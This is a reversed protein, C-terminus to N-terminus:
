HLHIRRADAHKFTSNPRPRSLQQAGARILESSPWRPCRYHSLLMRVADVHGIVMASLLPTMGLEDYDDLEFGNALAERLMAEDNNLAADLIRNM